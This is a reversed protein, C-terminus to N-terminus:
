TFLIFYIFLLMMIYIFHYFDYGTNNQQTVGPNLILQKSRYVLAKWQTWILGSKRDKHKDGVRTTYSKVKGLVCSVNKFGYLVTIPIQASVNM